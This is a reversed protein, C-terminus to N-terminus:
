GTCANFVMTLVRVFVSASLFFYEDVRVALEPADLVKFPVKSLTRPTKKPSLLLKQSEYRVPSASYREHTPSDLKHASNNASGSGNSNRSKTPSSYSFLNKTRTPTTPVAAASSISPNGAAYRSSSPSHTLFTSDLSTSTDQLTSTGFLESKLLANFTKHAEETQLSPPETQLSLTHM